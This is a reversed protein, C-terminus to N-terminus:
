LTTEVKIVAHDKAGHPNIALAEHATEAQVIIKQFEAKKSGPLASLRTIIWERNM